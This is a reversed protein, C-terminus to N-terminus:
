VAGNRKGPGEWSKGSARKSVEKPIQDSVMSQLMNKFKRVKIKCDTYIFVSFNCFLVSNWIGKRCNDFWFILLSLACMVLGHDQQFKM